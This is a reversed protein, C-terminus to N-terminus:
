NTEEILEPYKEMLKDFDGGKEPNYISWNTFAFNFFDIFVELKIDPPLTKFKYQAM